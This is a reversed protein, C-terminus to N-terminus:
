VYREDGVHRQQLASTDVPTLCEQCRLKELRLRRREEKRGLRAIDEELSIIRARAEELQNTLSVVGLGADELRDLKDDISENARELEQQLREIEAVLPAATADHM